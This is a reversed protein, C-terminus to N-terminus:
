RLHAKVWLKIWPWLATVSVGLTVAATAAFRRPTRARAEQVQTWKCVVLAALKFWPGHEDFHALEDTTSCNTRPPVAKM